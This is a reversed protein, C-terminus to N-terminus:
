SDVKSHRGSRRSAIRRLEEELDAIRAEAKQARDGEGEALAAGFADRMRRLFRTAETRREEGKVLGATSSGDGFLMTRLCREAQQYDRELDDTM